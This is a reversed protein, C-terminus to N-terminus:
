KKMKKIMEGSIFIFTFISGILAIMDTSIVFWGGMMTRQLMQIVDQSTHNFIGIYIVSARLIATRFVTLWLGLTLFMTGYMRRKFALESTAALFFMILIKLILDFLDIM